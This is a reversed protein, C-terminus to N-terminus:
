YKFDEFFKGDLLHSIYIAPKSKPIDKVDFQFLLFFGCILFLNGLCLFVQVTCFQLVISFSPKWFFSTM